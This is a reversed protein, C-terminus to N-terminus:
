SLRHALQWPFTLESGLEGLRSPSWANEGSRTSSASVVPGITGLPVPRVSSCFRPIASYAVPRGSPLTASREASAIGFRQVLAMGIPSGIDPGRHFPM